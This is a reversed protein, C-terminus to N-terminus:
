RALSSLLLAVLITAVASPVQVGRYPPNWTNAILLRTSQAMIPALCTRVMLLLPSLSLSPHQPWLSPVLCLLISYITLVSPHTSVFQPQFQPCCCFRFLLRFLLRVLHPPAPAPTPYQLSNSPHPQLALWDCGATKGVAWMRNGYAANTGNRSVIGDCSERGVARM